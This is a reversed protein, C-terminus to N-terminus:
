EGDIPNECHLDPLQQMVKVILELTNALLGPNPVWRAKVSLSQGPSQTSLAPVSMAPMSIAPPRSMAPAVVTPMLMTPTSM